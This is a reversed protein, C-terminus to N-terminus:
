CSYFYRRALVKIALDLIGEIQPRLYKPVNEAVDILCKLLLDDNQQQISLTVANIIGPLLERFYVLLQQDSENSVLFSCAAKAASFCM